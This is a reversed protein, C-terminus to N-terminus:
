LNRKTERVKQTIKLMENISNRLEKDQKDWWEWFAEELIQNQNKHLITSLYALTDTLEDSLTLTVKKKM